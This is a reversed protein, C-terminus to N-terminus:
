AANISVTIIPGVNGKVDGIVRLGPGYSEIDRPHKIGFVWSVDLGMTYKIELGLLKKWLGKTYKEPVM